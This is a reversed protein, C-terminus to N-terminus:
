VVAVWLGDRARTMAVYLERRLLTRTEAAAADDTAGTRGGSGVPTEALWEGRVDALLVHKFELGKARKITGVKVADSVEGRYSQLDVTKVGGRALAAHVASCARRGVCLVAIDGLAVEVDTAVQNVREVVAELRARESAFSVVTPAVGKRVVTGAVDGTRLVSAGAPAELDAIEDGDVMRRAFELIEVTNRYNVDMVVGRGAVSIGLESLTYGGPYISQQGDGILTLGDPADGVLTHLMRVASASLDQAEDVIVSVYGELPERELERCALLILDQFDHIGAAALRSSYALHLDWVSRRLDVTLPYQRGTRALDAYQEFRTIGRAKIVQLVEEKWYSEPAKGAALATGRGAENWAWAWANDAKRPEVVTDIGREDLVRKALSHVGTFEVRDAVDPAMRRMLGSLVDPLTRVFTTVLVKGARARALYAARHLGVVTKGTGAAGRIRSPGNFSRRVLKAQSPHLFTMWEEVPAALLGELLAAEVESTSILEDQVPARPAALVPEPVSVNVPAPAGVVPFSTLAAALVTDVQSQTLRMGRSAIHRLVDREGVIEVPGISERVGRRGALVVVPRVEGPPLGIEAFVGEAKYALDALTLVDDTADLQGRFIRGGEISVEAWSKTDVIYVGSPGIVVMDVQARRSGPWQRDALLHYGAASLPALARATAMETTAAAGYNAAHVRAEAAAREHAAALALQRQAEAEASSGAVM